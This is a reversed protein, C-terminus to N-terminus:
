GPEGGDRIGEDRAGGVRVRGPVAVRFAMGSQSSVRPYAELPPARRFAEIEVVNQFPPPAFSARDRRRRRGDPARLDIRSSAPASWGAIHLSLCGLKSQDDGVSDGRAIADDFLPFDCAAFEHAAYAEPAALTRAPCCSRAACL